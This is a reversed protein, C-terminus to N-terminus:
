LRYTCPTKAFLTSNNADYSPQQRSNNAPTSLTWLTLLSEYNRPRWEASPQRTAGIHLGSVTMMVGRTSGVTTSLPPPPNLSPLPTPSCLCTSQLMILCTRTVKVEDIVNVATISGEHYRMGGTNNGNSAGGYAGQSVINFHKHFMDWFIRNNLFCNRLTDRLCRM